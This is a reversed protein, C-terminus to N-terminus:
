LSVLETREVTALKQQVADINLTSWL